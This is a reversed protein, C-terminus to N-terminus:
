LLPTMQNVDICGFVWTEVIFDSLNAAESFTCSLLILAVAVSFILCFYFIEFRYMEAIVCM